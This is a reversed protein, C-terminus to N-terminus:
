IHTGSYTASGRIPGAKDLWRATVIAFVVLTIEIMILPPKAGAVM